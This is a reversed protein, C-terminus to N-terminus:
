KTGMVIRLGQFFAYPDRDPSLTEVKAFGAQNLAAHYQAATRYRATCSKSLFYVARLYLPLADKSFQDPIMREIILFKGGPRLTEAVREFLAQIQADDWDHASRCITMVDAQKPLECSFVDGATVDLPCPSTLQALRRRGISAVAPIDIFGGRLGPTARVIAECFTGTGGCLDFLYHHDAFSYTELVVKVIKDMTADMYASYDAALEPEVESVDDKFYDRLNFASAAGDTKVIEELNVMDTYLTNYYDILYTPMRFPLNRDQILLHAIGEPVGLKEDKLELLGLGLCANILITGSREPLELTKLAEGIAMPERALLTFVNLRYATMLVKSQIFADVLNLLDKEGMARKGMSSQSDTTM